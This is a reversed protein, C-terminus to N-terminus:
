KGPLVQRKVRLGEENQWGGTGEAALKDDARMATAGTFIFTTLLVSRAGLQEAPDPKNVGLLHSFVEFGTTRTPSRLGPLGVVSAQPSLCPQPASIKPCLCMQNGYKVCSYEAELLFSAGAWLKKFM